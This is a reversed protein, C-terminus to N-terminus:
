LFSFRLASNCLEWFMLFFCSQFFRFVKFPLHNNVTTCSPSTLKWEQIVCLGVSNGFKNNIEDVVGLFDPNPTKARRPPRPSASVSASIRASAHELGSDAFTRWLSGSLLYKLSRSGHLRQQM